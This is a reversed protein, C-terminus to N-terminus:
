MATLATNEFTELKFAENSGNQVCEFELTHFIGNESIDQGPDGTYQVEATIEMEGAADPASDGCILNLTMTDGDLFDQIVNAGAGYDFEDDYKIVLSGTM